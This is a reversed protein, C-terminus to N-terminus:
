EQKIIARAMNQPGRTTACFAAGPGHEIREVDSGSIKMIPGAYRYVDYIVFALVPFAHDDSEGV